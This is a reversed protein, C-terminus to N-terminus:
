LVGGCTPRKGASGYMTGTMCIPVITLPLRVTSRPPWGAAVADEVHVHQAVGPVIVGVTALTSM